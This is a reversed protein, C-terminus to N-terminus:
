ATGSAEMTFVRTTEERGRIRIAGVERLDPPSGARERTTGCTLLRTGLDKNLAELRQALNVADGYVTYTQRRAGGVSGAAVPGTAIGVRLRLRVGGFARGDGLALLARGARVACAAHNELALPINFAALVADGPFGIVVGGQATVADTAADFYENLTAIVAAPERRESLRTFGEIDAFVVSAERTQPALAAEQDALLASAIEPPVYQGFVEQARRRRREAVARDRVVGRARNVALAILGSIAVIAITEEIRNGAGIFDPDLLVRMYDEASGGAPFDAWSVRREMGSVIWLYAGWLSVCAMAGAFLVLAPSLSLAGVAVPLLFYGINYARFVMVQPVDGSVSLPLTAAIVGIGAIEAATFVYIAGRHGGQRLYRLLVLGAALYALVIALGIATSARYAVVGYLLWLAVVGLVASRALLTIALGDREARALDAEVDDHGAPALTPTGAKPLRTSASAM